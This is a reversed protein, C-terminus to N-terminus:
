CTQTFCQGPMRHLRTATWWCRRWMASVTPLFWSSYGVMAALLYDRRRYWFSTLGLIGITLNAYAVENQFPSNSWGIQEPIFPGFALHAVFGYVGGIGLVWFAIWLLSAEAWRDLRWARRTQM